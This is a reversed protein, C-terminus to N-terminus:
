SWWHAMDDPGEAGEYEEAAYELWVESVVRLVAAEEEDTAQEIVWAEWSPHEGIHCERHVPILEYPRPTAYRVSRAEPTVHHHDPNDVPESCIACRGGWLRDCLECMMVWEPTSRLEAKDERTMPVEWRGELRDTILKWDALIQQVQNL